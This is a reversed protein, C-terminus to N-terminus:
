IQYYSTSYSSPITCYKEAINKNTKIIIVSSKFYEERSGTQIFSIKTAISIYEMLAIKICWIASRNVHVTALATYKLCLVMSKPKGIAYQINHFESYYPLM